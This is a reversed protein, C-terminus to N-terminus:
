TVNSGIENLTVYMPGHLLLREYRSIEIGVRPTRPSASLSQQDERKVGRPPLILVTWTAFSSSFHGVGLLCSLVRLSGLFPEGIRILLHHFGLHTGRDRRARVHVRREREVVLSLGLVLSLGFVLLRSLSPVVM